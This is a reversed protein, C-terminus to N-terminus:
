RDNSVEVCLQSALAGDLEVWDAVGYDDPTFRRDGFDFGQSVENAPFSLGPTNVPDVGGFSPLAWTAVRGDSPGGSVLASVFWWSDLNTTQSPAMWGNSLTVGTGDLRLQYTAVVHSAQQCARLGIITGPEYTLRDNPEQAYVIGDPDVARDGAEAMPILGVLRIALRAQRVTLGIVDPLPGPEPLEVPTTGDPCDVIGLAIVIQTPQPDDGFYLDLPACDDHTAAFGGVFM